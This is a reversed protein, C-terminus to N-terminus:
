YIEDLLDSYKKNEVIHSAVTEAFYEKASTQAYITPFGELLRPRYIKMMGFLETALEQQPKGAAKHYYEQEWKDHDKINMLKYWIRHALEHVMSKVAHSNDDRYVKLEMDDTRENYTAIAKRDNPNRLLIKGYILFGYGRAKILKVVDKLMAVIKPRNTFHEESVRYYDYVEFNDVKAILNSKKDRYHRYVEFFQKAFGPRVKLDKEFGELIKEVENPIYTSHLCLDIYIEEPSKKLEIEKLVAPRYQDLYDYAAEKLVADIIFDKM